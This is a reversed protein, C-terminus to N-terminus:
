RILDPMHARAIYNVLGAEPCPRSSELPTEGGLKKTSFAARYAEPIPFVTLKVSIIVKSIVVIRSYRCFTWAWLLTGDVQLVHLSVKPILVSRSYPCKESAGGLTTLGKGDTRVQIM